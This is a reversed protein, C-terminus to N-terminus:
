MDHFYTKDFAYREVNDPVNNGWVLQGSKSGSDWVAIAHQCTDDCLKALTDVSLLKCDLQVVMVREAPWDGIPDSTAWKVSVIHEGFVAFVQQETKFANVPEIGNRDTGINLTFTM